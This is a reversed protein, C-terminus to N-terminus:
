AVAATAAMPTPVLQAKRYQWYKARIPDYRQALLDLAKSTGSGDTNGLEEQSAWRFSRSVPFM